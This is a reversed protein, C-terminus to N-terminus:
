LGGLKGSTKKCFTEKDSQLERSSAVHDAKVLNAGCM